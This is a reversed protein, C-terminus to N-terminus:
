WFLGYVKKAKFKKYTRITQFIIVCIVGVLVYWSFFIYCILIALIYVGYVVSRNILMTFGVNNHYYDTVKDIYTDFLDKSTQRDISPLSKSCQEFYEVLSQYVWNKDNETKIQQFHVILNEITNVHFYKTENSTVKNRLELLLTQLHKKKFEDDEEIM